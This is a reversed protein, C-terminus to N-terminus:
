NAAPDPKNIMEEFFDKLGNGLAVVGDTVAHSVDVGSKIGSQLLKSPWLLVDQPRLGAKARGQMLKGEFASKIDGFGFIPQDMKTHLTFDLVVKGQNMSKFMDLVVDTLREAKKQSEEPTRVKRVIDALELHCAADIDNNTGKINSSFNLKAKEIRAAGLDVWTSYYPYFVIADINEVKLTALMDKKYSNIWGQASLKGDSEGTHWSINGKLDFNTLVDTSVTHLNTAYFFIDKITFKITGSTATSDIFNLWGSYIKLSKITVPFVKNQGVTPTVAVTIPATAVIQGRGVDVSSNDAVAVPMPIRQYTLLPSVIKVKNLAIKGFLLNPISPSIYIYGAKLVGKIELNRIELNLPPRIDLKGITTKHGTLQEINRIIINKAEVIFFIYALSFLIVVIAIITFIKKWNKM